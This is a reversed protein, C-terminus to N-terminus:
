MRLAFECGAIVCVFFWYPMLRTVTYILRASCDTERTESTRSTHQREWQRLFWCPMLRQLQQHDGGHDCHLYLASLELIPRSTKRCGPWPLPFPRRKLLNCVGLRLSNPFVSLAHACVRLCVCVCVCGCVCM